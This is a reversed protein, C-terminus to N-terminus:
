KLRVICSKPLVRKKSEENNKNAKVKKDLNFNKNYEESWFLITEKHKKSLNPYLKTVLDIFEVKGTQKKDLFNFLSAAISKM